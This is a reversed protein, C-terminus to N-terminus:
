TEFNKAKQNLLILSVIRFGAFIGFLILAYMWGLSRDVSNVSLVTAWQQCITPSGPPQPYPDVCLAPDFEILMALNLAYKTAVIYQVWQLWIPIQNISIFFGLFLLQPVLVLPALELAAKANAVVSGLIYATSTAALMLLWLSLSLLMFNGQLDVAWYVVLFTTVATLFGLPLEVLLKAFVYPVTGYTNTAKERLFTVRELPFTLLAPQAAGFLGGIFVQVLAGFHTQVTYTSSHLDGAHLFIVCFIVNLFATGGFRGMLGAKDRFIGKFERVSLDVAQVLMGPRSQDAYQAVDVSSGGVGVISKALNFSRSIVSGQKVLPTESAAVELALPPRKTDADDNPLESLDRTQVLLMVHDAINTNLPVGLGVKRFEYDVHALPGQYVVHGSGLLILTTFENFVESSPQHISCLITCGIGAITNLIRVVKWASYSDLGSTPEDLFLCSPSSILEVGIAVRKKEGGSLGRILESGVMTHQVRMLGLSELMDNVLLARDAASVASSLRLHASFELAERATATPFLADEQTVYAVAKRFVTPRIREGNVLLEGKVVRGRSGGVIRGALINLLTTKGAGSPGMIAIVEGPTARGSIQNIIHKTSQPAGYGCCGRRTISYDIKKWELTVPQKKQKLTAFNPDFDLVLGSQQKGDGAELAVEALSM